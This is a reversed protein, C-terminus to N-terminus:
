EIVRWEYLVDLILNLDKMSIPINHKDQITHLVLHNVNEMQREYRTIPKSDFLM